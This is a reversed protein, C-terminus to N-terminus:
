KVPPTDGYTKLWLKRIGQAAGLKALSVLLGSFLTWQLIQMSNSKDNMKQEQKPADKKKVKKYSKDLLSQTAKAALLSSVTSVALWITKTKKM